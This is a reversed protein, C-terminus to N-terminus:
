RMRFAPSCSVSWETENSFLASEAVPVSPVPHPPPSGGGSSGTLASAVRLPVTGLPPEQAGRM